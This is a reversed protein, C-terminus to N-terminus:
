THRIMMTLLMGILQLLSGMVLSIQQMELVLSDKYEYFLNDPTYLNSLKYHEKVEIQIPNQAFLQEKIMTEMTYIWKKGILHTSELHVHLYTRDSNTTVQAVYTDEFLNKMESNMKLTPFVELFQKAM